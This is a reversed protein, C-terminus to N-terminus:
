GGPARQSSCTQEELYHVTPRCLVKLSGLARKHKQKGTRSVDAHMHGEVQLVRSGRIDTLHGNRTCLFGSWHVVLPRRLGLDVETERGKFCFHVLDLTLSHCTLFLKPLVASSLCPHSQLQNQKRRNDLNIQFSKVQQTLNQKEDTDESQGASASCSSWCSLGCGESGDSAALPAEPPRLFGGPPFDLRM